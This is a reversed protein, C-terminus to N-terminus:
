VRSCQASRCAHAVLAHLPPACDARGAARLAPPLRRQQAREAHRQAGARWSLPDPAATSTAGNSLSRRLTLRGERAASPGVSVALASDRALDRFIGRSLPHAHTRTTAPLSIRPRCAGRCGLNRRRLAACSEGRLSGTHSLDEDGSHTKGQACGSLHGDPLGCSALRRLSCDRPFLGLHENGAPRERGCGLLDRHGPRQRNDDVEMPRRANVRVM